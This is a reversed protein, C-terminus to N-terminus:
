GGYFKQMFAEQSMGHQRKFEHEELKQLSDIGNGNWNRYIGDIYRWSVNSEAGDAAIQFAKTLLEAKEDDYVGIAEGDALEERRYVRQFAKKVDNETPKPNRRYQKCLAAMLTQVKEMEAAITPIENCFIVEQSHTPHNDAAKAAGVELSMAQNDVIPTEERACEEVQHLHRIYITNKINKDNKVNKTQAKKINKEQEKSTKKKDKEQGEQREAQQYFGWKLVTVLTYKSTRKISAMQEMELVKLFRDIKGRSWGWRNSLHVMTTAFQGPELDVKVSNIIMTGKEFNTRLLIDLWAEAKSFIREEKWLFNDLMSRYLRIWGQQM